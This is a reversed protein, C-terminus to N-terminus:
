SGLTQREFHDLGFLPGVQQINRLSIFFGVTGWFLYPFTHGLHYLGKGKNKMTGWFLFVLKPNRIRNPNTSNPKLLRTTSAM